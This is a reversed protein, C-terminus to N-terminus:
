LRHNAPDAARAANRISERMHRVNQLATWHVTREALEMERDASVFDNRDAYIVAALVYLRAPAESRSQAWLTWELAASENKPRWHALWADIGLTSSPFKRLVRAALVDPATPPPLYRLHLVLYSHLALTAASLVLLLRFCVTSRRQNLTSLRSRLPQSGVASLQSSGAIGALFAAPVLVVAHYFVGDLLGTILCGALGAAAGHRLRATDVSPCRASFGRVAQRLLLVGLATSGVIGFDLLFQLIWNHPQDGDLKPTLYRYSNAGRGLWPTESFKNWTAKWFDLRTSSLENVTTAASTRAAATWWGLYPEPSWHLWSIIFGAAIVIGGRQLIAKRIDPSSRWFWILIGAAIGALGSRGGAWFLGGCAIAAAVGALLTELRKPRAEILLALGTMTGVMMHLGFIRGHGYVPFATIPTGERWQIWVALCGLTAGATIGALVCRIAATSVAFRRALLAGAVIWIGSAVSVLSPSPHPGTVSSVLAVCLTLLLLKSDLSGLASERRDTPRIRGFWFAPLLALPAVRDYDIPLLLLFPLGALAIGAACAARRLSAEDLPIDPSASGM